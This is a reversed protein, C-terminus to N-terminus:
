TYSLPLHKAVYLFPRTSSPSHPPPSGRPYLFELLLSSLRSAAFFPRGVFPTPLLALPLPPDPRLMPKAFWHSAIQNPQPPALVKGFDKQLGHKALEHAQKKM